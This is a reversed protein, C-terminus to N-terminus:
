EQKKKWFYALADNEIWCDLTSWYDLGVKSYIEVAVSPLVAFRHHRADNATSPQPALPSSNIYSNGTIGLSVSKSIHLIYILPVHKKPLLQRFKLSTVNHGKVVVYIYINIGLWSIDNKLLSKTPDLLHLPWTQLKINWGTWGHGRYKPKWDRWLWTKEAGM